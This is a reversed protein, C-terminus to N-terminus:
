QREAPGAGIHRGRGDGRHERRNARPETRSVVTVTAAGSERGGSDVITYSFTATGDAGGTPSIRVTRPGTRSIDARGGGDFSASGPVSQLRIDDGDPDSDNDLLDVSVDGASVDVQDANAVPAGNSVTVTVTARASLGGPDAVVASFSVEGSEEPRLAIGDGTISAWGPEGRLDVITLREDDTALDGAVITRQEGPRMSVSVGGAEPDRNVDITVTGTDRRDCAGEVVYEFSVNGNEGAPPTYTGTPTGLPPGVTTVTGNRAYTTLDIALPQRYGTFLSVDPAEPPAAECARVEVRLTADATAAGDSIRYGIQATGSAGSAARFTITSGSASADGLSGGGDRLTLTLPDNDPDRDNSLVDVSVSEGEGVEAFDDAAIPPQNRPPEVTLRVSATATLGDADEITYSAVMVGVLDPPPSLTVVNGAHTVSGPGETLRAGVVTLGSTSDPDVDNRLVEFSTPVGPGAITRADDTAIPAVPEPAVVRVTLRGVAVAGDADAVEYTITAVGPTRPAQYSIVGDDRSATGLTPATSSTVSLRGGDPDSDNALVDVAISGGTEVTVEEDVVDPPQNVVPPEQVTVIIDATATLGHTNVIEYACRFVGTRGPPPVFRVRDDATVTAEAGPPCSPAGALSPEIGSSDGDNRLVDINVAEDVYTSSSDDRAWPPLAPAELLVRVSVEGTVEHGVGDSVTYTFRVARDPPTGDPPVYQVRNGSVVARGGLDATGVAVILLPDGDPDIDNALM